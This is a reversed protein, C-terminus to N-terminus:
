AREMLLQTNLMPHSRHVLVAQLGHMDEDREILRLSTPNFNTWCDSEVILRAREKVNFTEGVYLGQSSGEVVYVGRREYRPNCYSEIPKSRPLRRDLWQRFERQKALLRSKSVRKRIALAAWRLEFASHNPAFERAVRDFELAIEPWCLVDDLTLGYELEMVRMAIESAFSYGDMQSFTLRKGAGKARPLRGTKRLRLLLRNYAFANGPVNKKTCAAVFAQNLEADCLLYDTSQGRSTAKYAELVGKLTKKDGPPLMKGNRIGGRKRGNATAPASRAPDSPGDLPQGVSTESLRKEIRRVYETSLETGLWQRGLKKAAVLTTGSGAFPDFVVDGPKSSIRLIRGLLQEPMQCGHFGEREKFTGAVRSFYWTDHHPLFSAPMDQPRMFWTNDPLRGKPNARGDAYVLQRASKVRVLPNESNFTFQEPNMVFHFLHTHSRSFGRVCNVGFTYYWIVWSRCSFKADNQAIMKLEAAYEDGIALWFTGTPKLVRHVQAIWERCWDIYKEDEQRDHYQDYEYGINFPPDAFVLDVSGSAMRRMLEICNGRHVKGLTLPTSKRAM